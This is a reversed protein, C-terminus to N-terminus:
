FNASLESGLLGLGAVREVASAEGIQFEAVEVSCDRVIIGRKADILLISMREVAAPERLSPLAIM